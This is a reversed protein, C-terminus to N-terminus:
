GTAPPKSTTSRLIGKLGFWETITHNYVDTQTTHLFCAHMLVVFPLTLLSQIYTSPLILLTHPLFCCNLIQKHCYAKIDIWLFMTLSSLNKLRGLQKGLCSNNRLLKVCPFVSVTSFQRSCSQKFALMLIGTRSWHM